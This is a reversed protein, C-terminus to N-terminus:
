FRSLGPRRSSLWTGGLEMWTARVRVVLCEGQWGDKLESPIQIRVVRLTGMISWHRRTDGNSLASHNTLWTHCRIHGRVDHPQMNLRICTFFSKVLHMNYSISTMSKHHTAQKKNSSMSKCTIALVLSTQYRNM